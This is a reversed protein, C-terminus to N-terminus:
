AQNRSSLYAHYSCLSHHLAQFNADRLVATISQKGSFASLVHVWRNYYYIRGEDDYFASWDYTTTAIEEADVGVTGGDAMM